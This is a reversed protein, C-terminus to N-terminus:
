PRKLKYVGFCRRKFVEHTIEWGYKDVTNHWGKYAKGKRGKWGKFKKIRDYDHVILTSSPSFLNNEMIYILPKERQDGTIGAGGGVQSDIFIYQYQQKPIDEWKQICLVSPIYEAIKKVAPEFTEVTVYTKFNLQNLYWTSIGGGIELMSVPKESQELIYDCLLELTIKAPSWRSSRWPSINLNIKPKKISSKVVTTNLASIRSSFTLSPGSFLSSFFTYSNLRIM